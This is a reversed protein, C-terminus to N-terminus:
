KIVATGAFGNEGIVPVSAKGERILKGLVDTINCEETLGKEEAQRVSQADREANESLTYAANDGAYAVICTPPVKWEMLMNELTERFDCEGLVILETHGTFISKGLHIEAEGCVEQPNKESSFIEEGSYFALSTGSKDALVARVYERQSINGDSCGTLFFASVIVALIRKM